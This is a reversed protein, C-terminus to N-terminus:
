RIAIARQEGPNWVIDASVFFKLIFAIESSGSDALDLPGIPLVINM